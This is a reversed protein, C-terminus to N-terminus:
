VIQELDPKERFFLETERTDFINYILMKHADELTEVFHWYNLDGSKTKVANCAITGDIYELIKGHFWTRGVKTMEVKYIWWDRDYTMFVQYRIDGMKPRTFKIM